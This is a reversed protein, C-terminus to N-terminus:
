IFYFHIIDVYRVYWGTNGVRDGQEDLPTSSASAMEGHAGAEDEAWVPEFRYPLVTESSLGAGGSAALDYGDEEDNSLQDIDNDPFTFSTTSDSFTSVSGSDSDSGNNLVSAM